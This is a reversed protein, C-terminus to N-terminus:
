AVLYGWVTVKRDVAAKNYLFVQLYPGMVPFRACYSSINWQSGHWSGEGSISIFNTSQPRPLNEELNVYCRAGMEGSGDFAFIVGLDVSAEDAENQTFRVFINVYRYGDVETYPPLSIGINAPLKHDTMFRVVKTCPHTCPRIEGKEKVQRVM